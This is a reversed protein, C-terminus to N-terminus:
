HIVRQGAAGYFTPEHDHFSNCGALSYIENADRFKCSAYHERRRNCPGVTNSINSATQWVNNAVRYLGTGDIEDIFVVFTSRVLVVRIWAVYELCMALMM